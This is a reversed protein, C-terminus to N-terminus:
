ILGEHGNPFYEKYRPNRLAMYSVFEDDDKLAKSLQRKNISPNQAAAERVNAEDSLARDLQHEKISPNRAAGARTDWDSHSLAKDIQYEKLIPNAAAFMRTQWDSSDGLLMDIHHDKLNKAQAAAIRHEPNSSHLLNTLTHESPSFDPSNVIENRTEPNNVFGDSMKEIHEPKLQVYQRLFDIQEM